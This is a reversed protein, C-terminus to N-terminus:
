TKSATVFKLGTMSTLLISTNCQMSKFHCVILFGKVPDAKFLPVLIMGEYNGEPGFFIDICQGRRCLHTQLTQILDEPVFLTELNKKQAVQSLIHSLKQLPPIKNSKSLNQSPHFKKYLMFVM